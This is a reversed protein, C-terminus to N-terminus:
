ADEGRRLSLRPSLFLRPSTGGERPVAEIFKVGHYLHPSAMIMAWIADDEIGAVTTIKEGTDTQIDYTKLHTTM